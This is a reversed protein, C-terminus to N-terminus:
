SVPDVARRRAVRWARVGLVGVTTGILLSAAILLAHIWLFGTAPFEGVTGSSWSRPDNWIAVAFRPWIVWTWVGVGTLFLAWGRSLVMAASYALADADPIASNGSPSRTVCTPCRPISHRWRERAAGALVYASQPALEVEYVKRDDGTGQQFRM